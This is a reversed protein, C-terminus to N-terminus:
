PSMTSASSRRTSSLPFTLSGCSSSSRDRVDDKFPSVAVESSSAFSSPSSAADDCVTSGMSMSQLPELVNQTILLEFHATVLLLQSVTKSRVHLSERRVAGAVHHHSTLCPFSVFLSRKCRVVYLLHLKCVRALMEHIRPAVRGNAPFPRDNLFSM